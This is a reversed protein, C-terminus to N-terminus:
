MTLILIFIILIFLLDYMINKNDLTEGTVCVDM